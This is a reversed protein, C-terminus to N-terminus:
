IRLRFKKKKWFAKKLQFQSINLSEEIRKRLEQASKLVLALKEKRYSGALIMELYGILVTLPTRFYHQASLLFQERASILRETKKRLAREQVAVKEAEERRKSEEHTAKILYYSFICFLLFTALTSIRWTFTPALLIQVLLIIGMLGVLLETLIVRIEFLHYKTIALTIIGIRLIRVRVVIIDGFHFNKKFEYSASCTQLLFTRGMEATFEPVGELAFLERAKGFLRAFHDHSVTGEINTEELTIRVFYDYFLGKEDRGVKGIIPAVSEKNNSQFNTNEM